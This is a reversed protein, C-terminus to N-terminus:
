KTLEKLDLDSVTLLGAKPLRKTMERWNPEKLYIKHLIESAKIISKNNAMTIATWYQMELNNPFLKMAANYEEMAKKMDNTETALDGADMHDYARKIKLLRALETLPAQHDDVRLDVLHDEDWPKNTSTGKVVLLAASQKGRIDGGVAQGAALAKLVREALPLKWNDEFAKSMAAPVKNNLMMNSQVSYNAGKIHGAFDVCNKGTHVAVNGKSDIIAVQRVEKGGDNSLLIDLAEQAHKGNKLLALGRIGFSKNVFSQTAVVGVGAQGWSVATGVSFWHSQVGVAMEGTKTDRAVISFTHAFPESKKSFQAKTQISILILALYLLIKKM